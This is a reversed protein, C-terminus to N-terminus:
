GLLQSIVVNIWLVLICPWYPIFVRMTDDNWKTVEETAYVQPICVMFESDDNWKTVEQTAYVQPICVMFESHWNWKVKYGRPYCIGSTYLGYVWQKIMESQLRKPLMYRLYVFWLSLTNWWKVKYGRPYCIGSTYLGYVWHIEDNWKTVEQTAYVQPICVMFETHKMMESQLRKPLMYRLYVFWLSLTNWWKVKYGRPYCMGSTYLGYVWQKIMESQLRRPLMYRLYVFWLNVTDGNWKTVEQTAYVQPICVMFESHWWKVKYGRPYCIDSTYLGYVWHTEDNWKTVEQTAYVQPICVMFETHKMMESQLRKPLMYRLYVFWLSLTNWWKVKYGRPYCISITYLSYVWQTVMESPLRKPLMYRLYVFWLSVTDDNWITYTSIYCWGM